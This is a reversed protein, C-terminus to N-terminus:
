GGIQKHCNWCLVEVDNITENGLCKYNKHHVTIHNGINFIWWMFFWSKNCRECTWNRLNKFDIAKEKWEPSVIYEYYNIKM